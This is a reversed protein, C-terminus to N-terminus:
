TMRSSLDHLLSGCFWWDIWWMLSYFNLVM